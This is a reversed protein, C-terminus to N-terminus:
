PLVTQRNLAKAVWGGILGFIPIRAMELKQFSPLQLSVKLRHHLKSLFSLGLKKLNLKRL